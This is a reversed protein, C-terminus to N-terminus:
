CISKYIEAIKHEAAIFRGARNSYVALAEFASPEGLRKGAWAFGLARQLGFKACSARLFFWIFFCIVALQKSKKIRASEPCASMSCGGCSSYADELVGQLPVLVGAGFRLAVGQLLSRELACAAM